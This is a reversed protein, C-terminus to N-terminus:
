RLRNTFRSEYDIDIWTIRETATLETLLILMFQKYSGGRLSNLLKWNIGDFSGLLLYKVNNRNYNGRIRISRIAKRIDPEGLDFSRTAIIGKVANGESSLISADDLVTSYNLVEGPNYPANHQRWSILCDPYSNLVTVGDVGLPALYTKHWSQTELMYVYQYMKTPHFFLIRAGNNDYAPTAERMFAMFTDGDEAPSMLTVWPSYLLTNRLESGMEIVFPKGNVSRSIETVSNGSLLMVGKETTFVVAQEISMITGPLAIHRSLNPPTMNAAFTGEATTVLMRIGGETFVYLPFDGFQGESLPVSTVAAGVVADSFTIINGASYLFPNEFESLFIKNKQPITRDEVNSSPWTAAKYRTGYRLSMLSVGLGLFAYACELLPHPQMPIVVGYDPTSSAPPIYYVEVEKCRTDPYSIWAYPIGQYYPGASPIDNGYYVFNRRGNFGSPYLAQGGDRDHSVVYHAEGTAPDVIKFRLIYSYIILSSSSDVPTEPTVQGNLSSDGRGIQEMAGMLLVRNNFNMSGRFPIYQSDSRYDFPMEEHTALKEGSVDDSAELRVYGQRLNSMQVSADVVDENVNFSAVKYFQGRALIEDKITKNRNQSDMGDFVFWNTTSDPINIFEADFKPTYIPESAFFDLSAVIDGWDSADYGSRLHVSFLDNLYVVVSTKEQPMIVFIKAKMWDTATGGGCLVPTSAYIYSGDYLRLAYRLFFPAAFLGQSRFEGVKEKVSTWVETIAENLSDHNPDDVNKAANWVTSDADGKELDGPAYFWWREEGHPVSVVEVSPKPIENGLFTYAGEKFLFYYPKADSFIILTKGISTAHTFSEGSGLVADGMLDAGGSLDEGYAKLHRDDSNYGIYNVVDTMKHIFVIKYRDDQGRSGYIGLPVPPMTPATEGQDLHVNLSEACGGDATARDSPTRSIGRLQIRKIM